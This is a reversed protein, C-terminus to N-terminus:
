LFPNGGPDSETGAPRSAPQQSGAAAPSDFPNGAQAPVTGNAGPQHAFMQRLRVEAEAQSRRHKNVGTVFVAVCILQIILSFLFLPLLGWVIALKRWGRLGGPLNPDRAFMHAGVAFMAFSIALQIIWSVGWLTGLM